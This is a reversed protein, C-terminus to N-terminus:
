KKDQMRKERNFGRKQGVKVWRGVGAEEGM